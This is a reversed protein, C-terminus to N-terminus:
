KVKNHKVVSGICKTASDDINNIDNLTTTVKGSLTKRKIDWDHYLYKDANDIVIDVDTIM